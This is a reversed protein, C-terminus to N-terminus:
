KIRMSGLVKKSVQANSLRICTSRGGGFGDLDDSADSPDHWRDQLSHALDRYFCRVGVTPDPSVRGM